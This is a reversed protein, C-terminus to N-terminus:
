EEVEDLISGKIKKGFLRVQIGARLGESVISGAAPTEIGKLAESSGSRFLM